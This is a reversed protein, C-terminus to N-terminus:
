DSPAGLTKPPYDGIYDLTAVRNRWEQHANRAANMISGRDSASLQSAEVISFWLLRSRLQVELPYGGSGFKKVRWFYGDPLAPLGTAKDINSM